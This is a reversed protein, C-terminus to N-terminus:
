QRMSCVNLLRCGPPEHESDQQRHGRSGTVRGERGRGASCRHTELGSPPRVLAVRPLRTRAPPPPLLAGDDGVLCPPCLTPAQLQVAMALEHADAPSSLMGHPRNNDHPRAPLRSLQRTSAAAADRGPQSPVRTSGTLRCRGQLHGVALVGAEALQPLKHLPEPGDPSGAVNYTIEHPGRAHPTTARSAAPARLRSVTGARGPACSELGTDKGM